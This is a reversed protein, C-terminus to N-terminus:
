VLDLSERERENENPEKTSENMKASETVQGERDCVREKDGERECGGGGERKRKRKRERVCVCLATTICFSLSNMPIILDIIDLEM